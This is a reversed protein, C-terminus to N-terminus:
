TPPATGVIAAYVKGTRGQEHRVDILEALHWGEPVLSPEAKGYLVSGSQVAVSKRAQRELKRVSMSVQM